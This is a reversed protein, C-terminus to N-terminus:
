FEETFENPEDLDIIESGFLLAENEEYQRTFSKGDTEWNGKMSSYLTTLEGSEVLAKYILEVQSM